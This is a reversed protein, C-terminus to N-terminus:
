LCYLVPRSPNVSLGNLFKMFRGNVEQLSSTPHVSIVFVLPLLVFLEDSARCPLACGPPQTQSLEPVLGIRLSAPPTLGWVFLWIHWTGSVAWKAIVVMVPCPAPLM